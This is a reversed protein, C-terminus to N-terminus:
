STVSAEDDQEALARSVSSAGVGFKAAANSLLGATEPGSM